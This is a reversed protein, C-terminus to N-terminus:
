VIFLVLGVSTSVNDFAVFVLRRLIALEAEKIDFGDVVVAASVIVKAVSTTIWTDQDLKVSYTGRAQDIM